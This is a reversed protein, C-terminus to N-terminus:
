FDCRFFDCETVTSNVRFGVRFLENAEVIKDTSCVNGLRKRGADLRTEFGGGEELGGIECKWEARVNANDFDIAIRTVDFELLVDGDVIAAVDDIRQEDIALDVTADDLGDALH